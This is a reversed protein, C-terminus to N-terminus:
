LKINIRVRTCHNTSGQKRIYKDYESATTQMHETFFINCSFVQVLTEKKMFNLSRTQLHGGTFKVFNEHVGIKYFMHSRSTRSLPEALMDNPVMVRSVQLFFQKYIIFYILNTKIRNKSIMFQWVPVFLVWARGELANNEIHKKSTWILM